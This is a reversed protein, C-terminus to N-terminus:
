KNFFDRQCTVLCAVALLYVLCYDVANCSNWVFHANNVNIGRQNSTNQFASNHLKLFWGCLSIFKIDHVRFVMRVWVCVDVFYCSSVTRSSKGCILLLCCGTFKDLRYAIVFITILKQIRNLARVSVCYLIIELSILVGAVSCYSGAIGHWPMWEGLLVKIEIFKLHLPENAARCSCLNLPVRVGHM